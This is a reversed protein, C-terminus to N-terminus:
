QAMSVVDERGVAELFYEVTRGKGPVCLANPLAWLGTARPFTGRTGLVKGGRQLWV